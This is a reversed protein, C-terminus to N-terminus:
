ITRPSCPAPQGPGSPGDSRQTLRRERWELEGEHAALFLMVIAPLYIVGIGSWLWPWFTLVLLVGSLGLIGWRDGCRLALLGSLVPGVALILTAPERIEIVRIVPIATVALTYWAATRALQTSDGGGPHSSDGLGPDRLTASAFLMVASPLLLIGGSWLHSLTLMLVVGLLFRFGRGTRPVMAAVCPVAPLLVFAVGEPTSGLVIAGLAVCMSIGIVGAIRGLREGTPPRPLSALALRLVAGLLIAVGIATAWFENLVGM